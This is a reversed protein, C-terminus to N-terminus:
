QHLCQAQQIYTGSPYVLHIRETSTCFPQAASHKATCQEARGAQGPPPLVGTVNTSGTYSRNCCTVAGEAASMIGGLVFSKTVTRSHDHGTTCENAWAFSLKTYEKFFFM